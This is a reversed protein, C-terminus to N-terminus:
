ADATGFVKLDACVFLQLEGKNQKSPFTTGIPKFGFRSLSSHMRDNNVGSTAYVASGNLWPMLKEVLRSSVRKKRHDPKVYVWGLEFDFKGPDCDANASAFVGDRHSVYPRKVAGVGLLEGGLRAFALALARDALDPLTSPDVEAGELVLHEFMARDAPSVDGPALVEIEIPPLDNM